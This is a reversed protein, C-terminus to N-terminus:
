GEGNDEFMSVFKLWIDLLRADSFYHKAEKFHTLCRELLVALSSEKGGKPYNQETWKIYRHWVELPDDGTHTRIELEFDSLVFCFYEKDPLCKTTIGWVGIHCDQWELKRQPTLRTQISGLIPLSM